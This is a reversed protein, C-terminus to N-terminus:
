YGNRKWDVDREGTVLLIEEDGLHNLSGNQTANRYEEDTLFYVSENTTVRVM